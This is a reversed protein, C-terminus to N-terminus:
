IKRCIAGGRISLPDLRIRVVSLGGEELESRITDELRFAHIFEINGWLMDGEEYELNGFTCTAIMRRLFLGIDSVRSRVDWHFQCLFYGGPMLTHAIRRVMEVRRKRTPVCSYMARSLWVVNYTDAPVDLNSIEQVLGNMVVGRASTNVKARDVMEAVFDVGTVQFGMKALPIAERGGGVGLLLLNGTKIQVDLLLDEEDSSLGEDVIENESWSKVDEPQAYTQRSFEILEDPKMVVVPLSQVFAGLKLLFRALSIRMSV